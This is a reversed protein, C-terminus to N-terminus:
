PEVVKEEKLLDDVYVRFRTTVNIGIPIEVKTGGKHKGEYVQSEGTNDRAMIRITVDGLDSPISYTFRSSQSSSLPVVTIRIDQGELLPQGPEPEQKVVTGAPGIAKANERIKVSAGVGSAWEQVSSSAQGIFDPLLPLGAPPMGKSVSVDVMAGRTAVTASSPHQTMVTGKPVDNSYMENIAGMQIGDGALMSQAEAIPRGVVDPIFVVQGGKSVIVRIARGSRVQMGSPPHQRIVTGAPLSEDFDISEQQISLNLASATRLAEMLSKGELKPVVVEPRSHLLSLMIRNISLGLILVFVFAAIAVVAWPRKAIRLFKQTKTETPLPALFDQESM